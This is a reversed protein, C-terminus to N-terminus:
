NKALLFNGLIGNIARAYIGINKEYKVEYIIIIMM